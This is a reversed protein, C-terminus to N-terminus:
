IRLPKESIRLDRLIYCSNGSVLLQVPQMQHTHEQHLRETPNERKAQELFFSSIMITDSVRNWIPGVAHIVIRVNKLDGATTM